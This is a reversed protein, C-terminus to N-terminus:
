FLLSAGIFLSTSTTNDRTSDSSSRSERRIQATLDGGRWVEYGANLNFSSIDDTRTSGEYEVNEYNFGAGIRTKPLAFWMANVTLENVLKHSSNNEEAYNLERTLNGSIITKGTPYWDGDVSWELGSFNRGTVNNNDRTVHGLRARVRTKGSVTWDAVAGIFREDFGTALPTPNTLRRADPYSGDVLRVEMGIREIAGGLYYAGVTATDTEADSIARATNSYKLSFKRLTLGARWNSHFRYNAAFVTTDETQVNNVPVGGLGLYSGLSRQRDQELRGSWLNGLQWNWSLNLDQGDYDLLSANKNFRTRNIRAKGKVQQRGPKWDLDFGLGLQHYSDSRNFGGALPVDDRVRFINDDYGYNVFVLPRFTDGELALVPPVMALLAM